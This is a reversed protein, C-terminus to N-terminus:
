DSVHRKGKGLGKPKRPSRTLGHAHTHTGIGIRTLPIFKEDRLCPDRRNVTYFLAPLSQFLSRTAGKHFSVRSVGTAKAKLLEVPFHM